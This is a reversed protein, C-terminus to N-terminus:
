PPSAAGSAALVAAAGLVPLLLRLTWAVPSGAGGGITGM